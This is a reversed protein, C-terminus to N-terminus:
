RRRSRVKARVLFDMRWGCNSRAPSQSACRWRWIAGCKGCAPRGAVRARVLARYVRYYLLVQLGAYDGTHELWANLFRWALDARGRAELDMALFAIDAM